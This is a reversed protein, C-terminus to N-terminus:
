HADLLDQAIQPYDATLMHVFNHRIPHLRQDSDADFRVTFYEGTNSARIIGFGDEFDLRVGDIKSLKQLLVPPCNFNKGVKPSIKLDADFSKYLSRQFDELGNFVSLVVVLAMTGVGVGLMSIISILSIFSTKKRSFFYKKAIYFPFNM